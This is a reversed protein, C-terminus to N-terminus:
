INRILKDIVDQQQQSSEQSAEELIETAANHGYLSIIKNQECQNKM